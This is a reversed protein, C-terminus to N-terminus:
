YVFDSRQVEDALSDRGHGRMLRALRGGLRSTQGLMQPIGSYISNPLIYNMVKRGIDERYPYYAIGFDHIRGLLFAIVIDYENFRERDIQFRGLVDSILHWNQQTKGNVVPLPLQLLEPFCLKLLATTKTYM